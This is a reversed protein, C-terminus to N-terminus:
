EIRHQEASPEVAGAEVQEKRGLQALFLQYWQTARERAGPSFDADKVYAWYVAFYTLSNVFEDGLNIAVAYSEAPKVLDAPLAGYQMYIYGQSAAPQPPVVAFQKPIKDDYAYHRVEASADMAAFFPNWMQLKELDVKTILRGPTVGSGTGMNHSIRLLSLGAAPLSQWTGAVLKVSASVVNADLKYFCIERQGYNIGSFLWAETFRDFGEDQLIGSAAAIIASALITGM